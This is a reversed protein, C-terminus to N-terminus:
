DLLREGAGPGQSLRAALTLADVDIPARPDTDLELDQITRAVRCLRHQARPDNDHRRLSPLLTYAEDTLPCLREITHERTPIEGNLEWPTHVLREAQRARAVLIRERVVESSEGRPADDREPTVSVVLDTHDWFWAPIRARDFDVNMTALVRTRAPFHLANHGQVITVAGTALPEHLHDGMVKPLDELVLVGGHALSFEGPRPPYGGGLLRSAGITPPPMRVPAHEIVGESVTRVLGHIKTVELARERDLGPLLGAICRTLMTKGSGHPGHLLLNHGGAIMIEIARRPLALGRIDALDPGPEPKTFTPTAAVRAFRQEGRLSAILSSLDRATVVELDPIVAAECVSESAVILRRFGERRATQAAILVGPAPLLTGDPALAAWLMTRRLRASPIIGHAVLLACVIALECGPSDKRPDAPELNVIQKCAPIPHGCCALAAQVRERADTLAGGVQGVITLSAPGPVSGVDAEVTIVHGELGLLGVSHTRGFM